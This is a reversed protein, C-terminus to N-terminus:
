KLLFGHTLEDDPEQVFNSVGTYFARGAVEVVVAKFDGCTIEEVAKGRFQSGTAGSKFMRSQNLQILGKHYQLAVRATVGSGTPSRDVQADAFVCINCTAEQSYEDKGDTLITGYLFALDDSVPHHLKVQAKVATTVATAADVLDRTRSKSVDLGFRRADVFAYYAGGYGIDVMVDGFGKVAVTLDTAFAFAPVSLFRVAGTKGESYEVFAKVLGCPCHINVATEPSRPEKVLGYDVAFRGLAIVAHGCMTSYGENHMFLVGLHAEALESRVVLAGYMDYHGRPEYMLARRLHDLHERLYRRKSLVTDGQVEPYGSVIVRLPEGGTHMDVVSLKAGEHPPLQVDMAEATLVRFVSRVTGTKVIFASSWGAKDIFSRASSKKKKKPIGGSTRWQVPPLGNSGGLPPFPSM